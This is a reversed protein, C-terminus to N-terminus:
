RSIRCQSLCCLRSLDPPCPCCIPSTLCLFHFNHVISFLYLRMGFYSRKGSECVIFLSSLRSALGQTQCLSTPNWRLPMTVRTQVAHIFQAEPLSSSTSIAILSTLPFCLALLININGYAFSLQWASRPWSGRSSQSRGWARGTGSKPQGSSIHLAMKWAM